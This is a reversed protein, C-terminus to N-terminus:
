VKNMWVSVPERAPIPRTDRQPLIRRGRLTGQARQSLYERGESGGEGEEKIIAGQGIVL